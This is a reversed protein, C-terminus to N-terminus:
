LREERGRYANGNEAAKKRYEDICILNDKLMNDLIFLYNHDKTIQKIRNNRIIYIRSDGISLWYLKDDNIIVSVLTTGAMLRNGNSDSLNYIINNTEETKNIFFAPISDLPIKASDKIFSKVATTSAVYGGEHGGMGDCLVAFVMGEDKYFEAYDQQEERTGIDSRLEIEYEIM